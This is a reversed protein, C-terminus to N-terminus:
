IIEVSDSPLWVTDGNATHVRISDGRKQIPEVVQGPSLKAIAVDANTASAVPAQVVVAIQREATQWSLVSSTAALVFMVAAISTATKWPVHFGLLSAGIFTWVGIWTVAMIVFIAWPSVRSNLWENGARAYGVFTSRLGKADASGDPAHLSKKAYALNM